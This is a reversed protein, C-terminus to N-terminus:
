ALFRGSSGSGNVEDVLNGVVERLGKLAAAAEAPFNPDRQAKEIHEDVKRLTSSAFTLSAM